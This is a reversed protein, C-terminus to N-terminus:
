GFVPIPFKWANNQSTFISKVYACPLIALGDVHLLGIHQKNTSASCTNRCRQPLGTNCVYPNPFGVQCLLGVGQETHREPMYNAGANNVLVHLPRGQEKYSAAFHRCFVQCTIIVNKNNRIDGHYLHDHSRVLLLCATAKFACHSQWGSTRQILSTWDPDLASKPRQYTLGATNCCTNVPLRAASSSLHHTNEADAGSKRQQPARQM